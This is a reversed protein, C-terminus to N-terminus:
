FGSSEIRSSEVWEFLPKLRGTLDGLFSEAPNDTKSEWTKECCGEGTCTDSRWEHECDDCRMWRSVTNDFFHATGLVTKNDHSCRPRNRWGTTPGWTGVELIRRRDEARLVEQDTPTFEKGRWRDALSMSPDVFGCGQSAGPSPDGLNLSQTTNLCWYECVIYGNDLYWRTTNVRPVHYHVYTGKRVCMETDLKTKPTDRM